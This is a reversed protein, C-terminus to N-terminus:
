ELAFDVNVLQLDIEVGPVCYLAVADLTSGTMIGKCVPM